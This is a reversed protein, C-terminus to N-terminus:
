PGPTATGQNKKGGPTPTPTATRIVGIQSEWPYLSLPRGFFYSEIIRRVVPAAWDAGEGQNEIIVAVAIDPKDKREEFTYAGFWANPEAQSTQATGTKGAINLNLGLFRNRATGKPARIVQVMAEQIASLQQDTLPLRGQSEPQFQYKVDGVANEVKNVLQPKYLTGGNGVAALYRAVQVPTVQLFGQGIALNVVDGPGWPIDNRQAKTEPSPVVGAEDGIEIGTSQGLGFAQAMEPLATPLGKNFLDYAIHFFWPNCSRELGQMLTIKGQPPLGRDHTWDYLPGISPDENWSGECDYITDPQYYGSKLAAAMTIIKFLSGIPYTGHTARNVLPQNTNQFLKTLGDSSNPNHWDFLNSDFGPTSAIALVAGTDRNLVVAAGRVQEPFSQLAQQTNLQLNRDLNTYVAYPPQPDRSALEKIVTGNADLLDLAGGPVGRLDSEYVEELGAQGVFADKPYGLREYQQVQSEQIQAVYGVSHPALGEDPYYRGPYIAWNVGGVSALTGQYKQFDSLLVEGLPVRWDTNRIDDYLAKINEAKKDLLKSLVSLMTSEADKGGIQNPVIWLAVIDGQTALALGNEDYINARVPTNVQMSLQNGGGLDPMIAAKTWAIKWTNGDRVLDMYPEQVFDGVAASHFTVRYRVQAKDPHVLSSVIQTSIGNLAVIASVTQYTQTFDDKSVGAQTLSSLLSYMTDYDEKAWADLFQQATGEADPAPTNRVSPGPLTTTPEPTTPATPLLGCGSTFIAVLLAVTVIRKM